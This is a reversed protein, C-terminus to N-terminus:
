PLRLNETAADDSTRPLMVTFRSGAGLESEVHVSGGHAEVSAKVLALGIGLGGMDRARARDVVYLREFIRPLDRYPIGSGTDSVELIAWAHDVRTRVTIEGHAPTHRLANEVLNVLVQAIRGPDIICPTSELDRILRVQAKRLRPELTDLPGGVVEALDTDIRRLPAREIGARTLDLFHEVLEILREIENAIRPYFYARTTAEDDEILTELMLKLGTLPTRLEHAVNGVLDRRRQESEVFPTEDGAVLLVSGQDLPVLTVHLRAQRAGLTLQISEDSAEGERARAARRELELSGTVEITARGRMRECSSAGFLLAAAHNADIVEDHADILLVARDVTNFLAEFRRRAEGEDSARLREDEAQRRHTHRRQRLLVFFLMTVLAISLAATLLPSQIMTSLVHLM